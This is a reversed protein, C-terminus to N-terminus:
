YRFKSSTNAISNASDNVEGITTNLKNFYRKLHTLSVKDNVNEQASTVQQSLEKIVNPEDIPVDLFTLMKTLIREAPEKTKTVRSLISYAVNKHVSLTTTERIKTFKILCHMVDDHNVESLPSTKPANGIYCLTPIIANELCTPATQIEYIYKTLGEGIYRQVKQDCKDETFLM